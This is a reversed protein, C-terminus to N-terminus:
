TCTSTTSATTPCSTWKSTPTLATTPRWSKTLRRRTHDPYETWWTSGGSNEELILESAFATGFGDSMWNGGTNMLDGPSEITSYLDLGMHEALADPIADDDPRNRNYLWDVLVRGDNHNTYVTNAGYDRIWISNSEADVVDVNDM